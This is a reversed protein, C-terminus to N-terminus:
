NGRRKSEHLPKPGKVTRDHGTASSRPGINLQLPVAIEVAVM